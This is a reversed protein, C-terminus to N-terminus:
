FRIFSKIAKTSDCSKRNEKENEWKKKMPWRMAFRKKFFSEKSATYFLTYFTM